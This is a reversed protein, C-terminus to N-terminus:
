AQKQQRTASAVDRELQLLRDAIAGPNAKYKGQEIQQRLETVRATDIEPMSALQEQLAALRRAADTISVSDTPKSAASAANGSVSAGRRTAAVGRAKGADVASTDPGKIRTTV